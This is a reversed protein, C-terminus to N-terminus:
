YEEQEIDEDNDTGWLTLNDKLLQMILTSDKYEEDGLDSLNDIAGDFATRALQTAQVKEGCIEYFFVSFNLALGLRIPNTPQLDEAATQAAEYAKQAWAKYDEKKADSAVEAGYRNYDGEMKKFFVVVEPEIDNQGQIYQDVIKKVKDILDFVEEAICNMYKEDLQAHANEAEREFFQNATRWATRRTAMNNKYGVSLLNREDITLENAGIGLDVIRNMYAVMDNYREAHEALRAM